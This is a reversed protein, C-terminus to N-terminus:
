IGDPDSEIRILEEASMRASLRYRMGASTKVPTFTIPEAIVSRVVRRAQAPDAALLQRFDSLHKRAEAELRRVELDIVSPATETAALRAKLERRRQSKEALKRALEPPKDEEDLNAAVAVLRKVERDLTEIEGKVIDLESVNAEARARIRRRVEGIIRLIVAENLIHEEVWSRFAADVAEVPRRLTNTCVAPGRDRAWGCQYVRIIRPSQKSNNVQMPGGCEACRSLEKGSLLYKPQHEKFGDRGSREKATAIRNQVREYLEEDIIRLEPREVMSVDADKREFTVRTGGRYEAGIKGWVLLGRYRERRVLERVCNPSWSRTGRRGVNPSPIGRANLDCAITRESDGSAFRQWIEVVIRAQEENIAYETYSKGDPGARRVNDYGYVRGGVNLGREAKRELAERTRESTKARENEAMAAKIATMIKQEASDLQVEEGNAYYFVRVGAALMDDLAVTLRAGAGLRSEDRVVIADFHRERSACLALLRAFGPRRKFEARSEGEDVIEDVISGRRREVFALAGARQTDISDAQHEDTSKRLYLLAKMEQTGRRTMKAIVLDAMAEVFPQLADRVPAVSAPAQSRGAFLAPRAPKPTPM